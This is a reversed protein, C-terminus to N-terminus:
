GAAIAGALAASLIGTTAIGALWWAVSAVAKRTDDLQQQTQQKLAEISHQTTQQLSELPNTSTLDALTAPTVRSLASHQNLLQPLQEVIREVLVGAAGQLLPGTAQTMVQQPSTTESEIDKNVNADISPEGVTEVWAKEAEKLIRQKKSDSLDHRENLIEKLLPHEGQMLTRYHTMQIQSRQLIQKLKRHSRKPTLKEASTNLLYHKLTEELLATEPSSDGEMSPESSWEHAPPSATESAIAEVQERVWQRLQDPQLLRQTERLEDLVQNEVAPEEKPRIAAIIASFIRRAGGMTVDLVTGLVKGVTLSGIWLLALLYASWISIGAIAGLWLGEVRSFKVALLSATFLVVNVTLLIGWGAIKGWRVRSRGEAAAEIVQSDPSPNATTMRLWSIGVAIGLSTLLVQLAFAVLLGVLLATLIQPLVATGLNASLNDIQLLFPRFLSNQSLCWFM